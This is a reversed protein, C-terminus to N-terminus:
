TTDERILSTLGDLDYAEFAHVYRALIGRQTDDMEAPPDTVRLGSTALTARARQLASNVSAVTTDLLQAAETAKWRLVECLLLM